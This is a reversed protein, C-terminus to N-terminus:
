NGGVELKCLWRFLYVAANMAIYFVAYSYHEYGALIVVMVADFCLDLIRYAKTRDPTAAAMREVADNEYGDIALMFIGLAMLLLAFVTLFWILFFGGNFLFPPM